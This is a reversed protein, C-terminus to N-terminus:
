LNAKNLNNGESEPRKALQSIQERTGYFAFGSWNFETIKKLLRGTNGTVFIRLSKAPM